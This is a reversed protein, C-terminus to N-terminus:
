SQTRRLQNLVTLLLRLPATEEDNAAVLSQNSHELRSPAVVGHGHLSGRPFVPALVKGIEADLDVAAFEVEGGDLVDEVKDGVAGGLEHEVDAFLEVKDGDDHEHFTQGIFAIRFDIGM